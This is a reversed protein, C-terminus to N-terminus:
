PCTSSANPLPTTEPQQREHAAPLNRARPGHSRVRADGATGDLMHICQAARNLMVRHTTHLSSQGRSIWQAFFGGSDARLRRGDRVAKRPPGALKEM